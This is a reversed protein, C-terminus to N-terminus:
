YATDEPLVFQARGQDDTTIEARLRAAHSCPQVGDCSVGPRPTLDALQFIRLLAGNVPYGDPGM